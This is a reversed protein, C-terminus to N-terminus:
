LLSDWEMIVTVSNGTDNFQVTRCLDWLLRLGRGHYRDTRAQESQIRRIYAAHDFGPGSDTVSIELRIADPELSGVVEFRVFGKVNELALARAAYYQAFGEASQKLESKLGLVGHELGNSYLEALVTYIESSHLRLYPAEMMVQQMLPLPNFEKLSQPGLEYSFKWDKPGAADISDASIRGTEIEHLEVLRVEVMTIDDDRDKEGMFGHVEAAVTDFLADVPTAEVIEELREVGFYDGNANRAEVVGDTALFLRDGPMAEVVVTEDTFRESPLIGLPLNHSTLPVLRSSSQRRLYATPVGGNWYEVTGRRFDIDLAVACCFYGSPLVSGLKRNCERLIERMSFGKAAMGYFVDALPMAGIAAALGHGTFDGLLVFLDDSPTHAALLVDGNFVSLPSLMHRIYSCALQRSHAVNDFVAKAAEQDAVLQMHHMSIEDRQSQVTQHMDRMRSLANLKAELIVRNYPKSLFDDGGVEVCRALEKAETLSTLFIIPVFGDGSDAKIEEAVAFGDKGPMLADLLVLDPKDAYYKNLADNGDIADTVEYGASRVITTLIKRDVANDDAVLVRVVIKERQWDGLASGPLM